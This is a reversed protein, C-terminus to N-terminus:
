MNEKRKEPLLTKNFKRRCNRRRLIKKTYTFNKTCLTQRSKRDKWKKNLIIVEFIRLKM